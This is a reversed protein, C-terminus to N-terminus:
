RKQASQSASVVPTGSDISVVRGDILLVTTASSHQRDIYVFSEVEHGKERKYMIVDADGRLGRVGARVTGLRLSAMQASGRAPPVYEVPETPQHPSRQLSTTPIDPVSSRRRKTNRPTWLSTDPEQESAAKPSDKE